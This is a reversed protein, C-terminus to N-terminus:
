FKFVNDNSYGLKGLLGTVEGQSKDPNKDGSIAKMMPPPGCVQVRHQRQPRTCIVHEQPLRMPLLLNFVTCGQGCPVLLAARSPCAPRMDTFLLRTRRHCRCVLVLNDDGPPPMHTTLMDETIYGVGGKWGMMPAKDVVYYVKFNDHEAALKDIYDKPVIDAPTKNALIFSVETKDDPNDLIADVVQLM